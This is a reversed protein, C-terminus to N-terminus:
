VELGQPLLIALCLNEYCNVGSKGNSNDGWEFGCAKLLQYPTM